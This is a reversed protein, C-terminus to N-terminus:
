FFVSMNKDNVEYLGQGNAQNSALNTSLTIDPAVFNAAVGFHSMDISLLNVLIAVICCNSKSLEDDEDAGNRSKYSVIMDCIQGNFQTMNYLCELSHLLVFINQLSLLHELRYLIKNLFLSSKITLVEICESDTITRLKYENNETIIESSSLIIENM